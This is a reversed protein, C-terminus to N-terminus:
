TTACVILEDVVGLDHLVELTRAQVGTAKSLTTPAAAKDGIRVHAGHRTLDAPRRRAL